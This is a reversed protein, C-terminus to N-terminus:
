VFQCWYGKNNGNISVDYTDAKAITAPGTIGAGVSLLSSFLLGKLIRKMIKDRKNLFITYFDNKIM